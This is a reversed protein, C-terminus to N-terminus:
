GESSDDARRRLDEWAHDAGWASAAIWALLRRSEGTVPSTSKYGFDHQPEAYAHMFLTRIQLEFTKPMDHEAHWEPGQLHEPIVCIQHHSEYGFEANHPPRHRADEVTGWRAKAIAAVGEIDSSFFVLVRGAIQDEIEELPNLYKDTCKTAFSGMSKVRFTVRDIHPRDDLASILGSELQHAMDTLLPQRREYAALVDSRDADPM